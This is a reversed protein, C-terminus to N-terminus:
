VDLVKPTYPGPGDDFTLAITRNPVHLGAASPRSADLVPGGDLVAAPVPRGGSRDAFRHPSEGETGGTVAALALLAVLVVLTIALLGWHARPTRRRVRPGATDHAPRPQHRVARPSRHAFTIRTLPIPAAG